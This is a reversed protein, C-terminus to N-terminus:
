LALLIIAAAGTASVLLQMLGWVFSADIRAFPWRGARQFIWLYNSWGPEDLASRFATERQGILASHHTLYKSHRGLLTKEYEDLL